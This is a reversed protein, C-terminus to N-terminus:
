LQISRVVLWIPSSCSYRVSLNSVTCQCRQNYWNYTIYDVSCNTIHHHTSDDLDDEELDEEELFLETPANKLSRFIVSQDSLSNTDESSEYVNSLSESAAWVHMMGLLFVTLTALLRAIVFRIKKTIM